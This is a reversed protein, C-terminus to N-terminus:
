YVLGPLDTVVHEKRCLASYPVYTWTEVSFEAVRLKSAMSLTHLYGCVLLANAFSTVRMKDLWLHERKSHEVEFEQHLFDSLPSYPDIPSQEGTPGIGFAFRTDRHPDVDKNARAGVGRRFVFDKGQVLRRAVTSYAPDEINWSAKDAGQIQHVTGLITVRRAAM